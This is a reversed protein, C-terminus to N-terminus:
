AAGWKSDMIPREVWDKAWERDAASPAKNWLREFARRWEVSREHDDKPYDSASISARTRLAVVQAEPTKGKAAELLASRNDDLGIEKAVAKAEPSLAAVKMARQVDRESIGLAKAAKAAIGPRGGKARDTESLNDSVRVAALEAWRKVQADRELATLEARHLNEAIEWLEAEVEDVDGVFAEITSWGLRRAAELRHSGAILVYAQGLIEGTEDDPVDAALRVSIPVRLGIRSLSEVLISVAGDNIARRREGRVISDTTLVEIRRPRTM